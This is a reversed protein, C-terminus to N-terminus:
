KKVGNAEQYAKIFANAFKTSPRKELRSQQSNKVSLVLRAKGSSGKVFVRGEGAILPVKVITTNTTRGWWGDDSTNSTAGTVTDSEQDRFVLMIEAEDDSGLIEIGLNAKELQKVIRDRVEMDAGTDLFVKTLGKLDSAKGYEIQASATFSLLLVFLLLMPTKM